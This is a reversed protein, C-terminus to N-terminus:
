LFLSFYKPSNGGNATWVCVCVCVCVCVRDCVRVCARVCVRRTTYTKWCNQYHVTLTYFIVATGALTHQNSLETQSKTVGHVAARWAGRGM